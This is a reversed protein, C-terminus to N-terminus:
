EWVISLQWTSPAALTWNAGGIVSTANFTALVTLIDNASPSSTLTIKNEVLIDATAWTQGIQTEANLTSTGLSNGAAVNKDKVTLLARGSTAFAMALCRLKLTGTPISEPM